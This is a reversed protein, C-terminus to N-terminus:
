EFSRRTTTKNNKIRNNVADNENAADNVEDRYYNQLCGSRMLYNYILMVIYM